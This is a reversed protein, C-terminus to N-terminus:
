KGGVAIRWGRRSVFEGLKAAEEQDLLRGERFDEELKQRNSAEVGSSILAGVLGFGFKGMLGVTRPMLSLTCSPPSNRSATVLVDAAQELSPLILGVTSGFFQGLPQFEGHLMVALQNYTGEGISFPNVLQYLIGNGSVITISHVYYDRPNHRLQKICILAGMSDAEVAKEPVWTHAHITGGLSRLNGRSTVADLGVFLKGKEFGTDTTRIGEFYLGPKPIVQARTLLILIVAIPLTGFTGPLRDDKAQRETYLAILAVLVFLFGISVIVLWLRRSTTTRSRLTFFGSIDSPVAGPRNDTNPM